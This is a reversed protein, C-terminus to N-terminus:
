RCTWDISPVDSTRGNAAIAITYGGSDARIKSNDTAEVLLAGGSRVDVVASDANTTQTIYAHTKSDIKNGTGAGAIVLM